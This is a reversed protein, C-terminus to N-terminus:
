AWSFSFSKGFNSNLFRQLEQYISISLKNPSIVIYGDKTESAIVQNERVFDYPLIDSKINEASEEQM